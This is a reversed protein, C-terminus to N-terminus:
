RRRAGVAAPHPRAAGEGAPAGVGGALGDRRRAGKALERRRQIRGHRAPRPATKAGNSIDESVRPPASRSTGELTFTRVFGSSCRGARTLKPPPSVLVDGEPQFSPVRRMTQRSRRWGPMPAIFEALAAEKHGAFRLPSLANSPASTGGVRNGPFGPVILSWEHHIALRATEASFLDRLRTLMM